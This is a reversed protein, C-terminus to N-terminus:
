VIVMADGFSFFRYGEAVAIDYLHRVTSIGGPVAAAVMALLTSRPLHFNTLMADVRRWRYGESILLRTSLWAPIADPQGPAAPEGPRALAGPVAAHDGAEMAAAYSEITRVSTSGVAIVRRQSRFIAHHAAADISCWEAHMDHKEVEDADIPKFTGAGVHLTVEARAVGRAALRDLLAPTFHLGATPAAVSAGHAPDTHPGAAFVTQYHSRDVADPVAVGAHKRARRIYPPLPTRGARDLVSPTDDPAHTHVAALWQGGADPRLDGSPSSSTAARPAAGGLSSADLLELTVGAPTGDDRLLALRSGVRPRKARLMLRWTPLGADTPPGDALWLGEFAGGTAENVGEFRAPLVRSRNFVLLDTDGLLGPLDAITRHEPRTPDSRRVVMLRASERPEAPRTAILHEPLHFDLDSTRM